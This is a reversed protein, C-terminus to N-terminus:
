DNLKKSIVVVGIDGFVAQYKIGKIKNVPTYILYSKYQYVDQKDALNLHYAYILYEFGVKFNDKSFYDILIPAGKSDKKIFEIVEETVKLSRNNKIKPLEGFNIFAMLILFIMILFRFFKLQWIFALSSAFILIFIPFNLLFYYDRSSESYFSFLFIPFLLWFILIKYLKLDRRWTKKLFFIFIFFFAFSGLFWRSRPSLQESAIIQWFNNFVILFNFYFKQFFNFTISNSLQAVLNKISRTIIFQHRIDFFLLPIFALGFGFIILLINRLIEPINQKNKEYILYSFIVMPFFAIAAFHFHLGLGAILGIIILLRQKKRREKQVINQLLLLILLSFTMLPPDNRCNRNLFNIYLSFIYILSAFFGIKFSFFKEGAFYILILTTLGFFIAAWAGGLPSLKFFWYFPVLSYYFLPGYFIGYFSSQPGILTLKHDVIIKKVVWADRYQDFSFTYLEALRYARTLFYLIILLFILFLKLKNM